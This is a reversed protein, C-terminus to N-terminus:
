RRHRGSLGGNMLNSFVKAAMRAHFAIDKLASEAQVTMSRFRDMARDILNEM